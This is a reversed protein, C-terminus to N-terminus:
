ISINKLFDQHFKSKEHRVKHHIATGKGCPCIYKNAEKYLRDKKLLEEKHDQRYKKNYDKFYTESIKGPIVKNVCKISKIHYAERAHAEDKSNCPFVELLIINCNEVGYEEFLEFSTTKNARNGKKWQKFNSRHSDMRQSLYQKTTSGIYIKPGQSSEIKYIKTNQYNM